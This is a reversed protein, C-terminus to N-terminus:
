RMLVLFFLCSVQEIESFSSLLDDPISWSFIDLNERMRSEKSSKSVVSHGMQVGWRLAIQAPTKGLKEATSVLVRHQLVDSMLWPTGPSGM